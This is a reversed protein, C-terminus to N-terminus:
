LKEVKLRIPSSDELMALLNKALNIQGDWYGIQYADDINGGACDNIDFDEDECQASTEVIKKLKVIVENMM